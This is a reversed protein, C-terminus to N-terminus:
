TYAGTRQNVWGEASTIQATTSAAGRVILSYLRGNFPLNTNARRGIYLPYNGFNGTGADGFSTGTNSVANVRFRIEAAAGSAAIDHQVTVVNTIPATYTTVLTNTSAISATGFLYSAYSPGTAIPAHLNFSGPNSAGASTSLEVLIANSQDVLKRVGAFVTMKDTATFDISNTVLSDDVGDFALYPKFGVTDYDTSTNVRQYAPQGLADNSVRLDVSKCFYGKSGDGTFTQNSTATGTVRIDLFTVSVSASTTVSVQRYGDADFAGFVVSVGSSSLVQWTSLNIIATASAGIFIESYVGADGEKLSLVLKFTNTLALSFRRGFYNTAAAPILKYGTYACAGAVNAWPSTGLEDTKELLNYRASLVPRSASTTQFAHNGPLEKVSINDVWAVTNADPAQVVCTSDLATLYATFTGSTGSAILTTSSGLIPNFRLRGSTSSYTFSVKYVKGATASVGAALTLLSSGANTGDINARGGSISWGSGLTWGTSSSFDGNTVLESGLVLGKSKDLMLGVPQQVATVPTTGASDQFLTTLDSPDYWVGQEGAAFLAAPSFMWGLRTLALSITSLNM